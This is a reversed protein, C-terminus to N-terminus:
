NGFLSKLVNEAQKATTNILDDANIAARSEEEGGDEEEDQEAASSSRAATTNSSGGFIAKVPDSMDAYEVTKDPEFLSADIRANKEFSIVEYVSPKEDPAEGIKETVQKMIFGDRNKWETIKYKTEIFLVNSTKTYEYVDCDQGCIKEKGTKVSSSNDQAPAFINMQANMDTLKIKWGSKKGAFRQYIWGEKLISITLPENKEDVLESRIRDGSIFGNYFLKGESEKGWANTKTKIKLTKYPSKLHSLVSGSESSFLLSVALFLSVSVLSFLKKM